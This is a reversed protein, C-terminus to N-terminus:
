ERGESVGLFNVLRLLALHQDQPHRLGGEEVVPAVDVEAVIEVLVPLEDLL